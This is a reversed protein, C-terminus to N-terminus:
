EVPIPGGAPPPEARLEEATAPPSLSSRWRAKLQVTLLMELAFYSVILRFVLYSPLFYILSRGGVVALVAAMAVLQLGLLVAGAAGIERLPLLSHDLFILAFGAVAFPILLIKRFMVFCAWPLTWMGRLGQRGSMASRNRGIMHILGCSWRMRQERLERLNRPQESFVKIAPDSVIRYGLRGVRVTIDADEGFMGESFGGVELLLDRRFAVAAGPLVSIADVAGQSTRKFVAGYYVEVARMREIWTTEKHPLPATGVGGVLPDAFHPALRVLLDGTVLTDADVRVLVSETAECLGTNLAHAKARPKHDTSSTLVVGRAHQCAALTAEAEERTADTSGNEIVYVTVPGGWEGVAADIARLCDGIRGEENHAPVLFGFTPLVREQVEESASSAAGPIEGVLRRRSGEVISGILLLYIPLLVFFCVFVSALGGLLPFSALWRQERGGFEFIGVISGVSAAVAAVLVGLFYRPREVVQEVRFDAPLRVATFTAVGVAVIGALGVCINARASFPALGGHRAWKAFVVDVIVMLPVYILLAIAALRIRAQISGAAFVAFLILAAIVFARVAITAHKPIGLAHVGAMRSILETYRVTLRPLVAQIGAAAAVFALLLAPALWPSRRLVLGKPAV